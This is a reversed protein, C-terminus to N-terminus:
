NIVGESVIAVGYAEQIVGAGATAKVVMDTARAAPLYLTNLDIGGRMAQALAKPSFVGNRFATAGGTTVSAVLASEFISVGGVSGIYFDSLVSNGLNSLAPVNTQASYTLQKKMNYACAPHVVAFFPGTLKNARLKAAAQLVLDVTLETSTSGLANTTFGSFTAFVQTDMSEAIARGSQDGLQAMVDGYASDRLMDTVQNYVVHEAMTITPGATNTTKATAAAEDTILEATISAWVPVQVIKGANMPVDFTTVLQRAISNEYAAYQAQAVFNAYLENNINTNNNSPYAM